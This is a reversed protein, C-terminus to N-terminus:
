KILKQKISINMAEYWDKSLNEREAISLKQFEPRSMSKSRRGKEIDMADEYQEVRDFNGDKRKLEGLLHHYEENPAGTDLYRGGKYPRYVYELNKSMTVKEGATEKRPLRSNDKINNISKPKITPTDIGEIDIRRSNDVWKERNSPTDPLTNVARRAMDPNMAHHDKGMRAFAAKREKDSKFKMNDGILLFTRYM